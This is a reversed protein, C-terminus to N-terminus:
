FILSLALNAIFAVNASKEYEEKDKFPHQVLYKNFGVDTFIDTFSTIISITAVVGFDEPTLLRALIMNVIPVILKSSFEAAVSFKAAKKTKQTLFKDNKEEFM